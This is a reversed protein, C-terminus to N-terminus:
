KKGRKRETTSGIWRQTQRDDTQNIEQEAVGEKRGREQQDSVISWQESNEARKSRLGEKSSMVRESRQESLNKHISIIQNM